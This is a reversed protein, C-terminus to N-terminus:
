PKAVMLSIPASVEISEGGVEAEARIMAGSVAGIPSEKGTRVVLKASGQGSALILPDAQLKAVDPADLSLRVPGAFKGQRDVKVEIESTEGAKITEPKSAITLVVPASRVAVVVANSPEEVKFKAKARPDTQYTASGKLAITYLGPALGKPVPWSVHSSTSGRSITANPAPMGAPPEWGSLAITDDFGSGPKVLVDIEVSQGQAVVTRRPTATLLFPAGERVAVAFGRAARAPTV